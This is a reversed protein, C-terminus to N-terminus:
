IKKFFLDYIIKSVGYLALSIILGIPFFLISFYIIVSIQTMTIGRTCFVKILHISLKKQIDKLIGLEKLIEKRNDVFYTAKYRGRENRLLFKIKNKYSYYISIVDYYYGDINAKIQKKGDENNFIMEM